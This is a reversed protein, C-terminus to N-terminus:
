LGALWPGVPRTPTSRPSLAGRLRLWWGQPSDPARRGLTVAHREGCLSLRLADGATVRAATGPRRGLLDDIEVDRVDAISIRHDVLERVPPLVKFEAGAQVGQHSGFWALEQGGQAHSFTSSGDFDGGVVQLWAGSGETDGATADLHTSVAQVGQRWMDRLDGPVAGAMYAEDALDSELLWSDVGDFM